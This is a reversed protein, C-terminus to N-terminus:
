PERLGSWVRVVVSANVIIQLPKLYAISLFPTHPRSVSLNTENAVDMPTARSRTLSAMIIRNKLSVSGLNLPQRLAKLPLNINIPKVSM